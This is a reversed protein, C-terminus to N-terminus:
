ATLVDVGTSVSPDPSSKRKQAVIGAASGSVITIDPAFLKPGSSTAPPNKVPKVDLAAVETPQPANPSAGVAVCVRNAVDGVQVPAVATVMVTGADPIPIAAMNLWAPVAPVDQPVMVHDVADGLWMVLAAPSSFAQTSLSGSLMESACVMVAPVHPGDAVDDGAKALLLASTAAVNWQPWYFFWGLELDREAPATRPRSPEVTVASSVAGDLWSESLCDLIISM